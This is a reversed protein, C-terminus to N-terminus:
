GCEGLLGRVQASVDTEMLAADDHNQAAQALTEPAVGVKLALAVLGHTNPQTGREFIANVLVLRDAETILGDTIATM